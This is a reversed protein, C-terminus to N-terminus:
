PRWQQKQKEASSSCSSSSPAASNRSFWCCCCCFPLASNRSLFCFVSDLRQHNQFARRKVTRKRTGGFQTHIRVHIYTQIYAYTRTHIDIHIYIYTYTHRYTHIRVHIYTQIYTGISRHTDVNNKQPTFNPRFGCLFYVLSYGTEMYEQNESFYGFNSFIYYNKAM